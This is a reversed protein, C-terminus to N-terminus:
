SADRPPADSERKVMTFNMLREQRKDRSGARRAKIRDVLTEVAAAAMDSIPQHITTLEPWISQAFDTDDFGCITVDTPVDLHRRHAVTTAAAAMDDNSAFIATPPNPLNFLREAAALGSRYNFDGPVILSQDLSIGAGELAAKFGALREGSATHAAHGEIFGIRKHGLGIIHETMAKAAAVDDIWIVAHEGPPRWNAIIAVPKGSDNVISRIRESDCLPPPLILGDISTELLERVTQADDGGPECNEIVLQVNSKRAQELSGVLLRSLYAVSPNSYLLGIRIQDASALSRAALNPSYRLKEVASLVKERTDARVNKEGNIVRSVTMPSFGAERAVDSITPVGPQSRPSRQKM